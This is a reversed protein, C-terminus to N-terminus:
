ENGTCERLGYSRCTGRGMAMELGFSLLGMNGALDPSARESM